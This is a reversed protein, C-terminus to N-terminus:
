DDEKFPFFAAGLILLAALTFFVAGEIASM